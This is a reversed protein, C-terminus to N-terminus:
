SGPGFLFWVILGIIPLLIVVAIWIAKTGAGASSEAIKVIAYIDAVLILIGIIGNIELMQGERQVTVLFKVCREAHNPPM